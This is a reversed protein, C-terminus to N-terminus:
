SKSSQTSIEIPDGTKDMFGSRVMGNIFIEEFFITLFLHKIREPLDRDRQRPLSDYEVFLNAISTSVRSRSEPTSYLAFQKWISQKLLQFRHLFPISGSSSAKWHSSSARSQGQDDFPQLVITSIQSLWGEFCQGIQIALNENFSEKFNKWALISSLSSYDNQRIQLGPPFTLRSVWHDPNFLNISTWYQVLNTLIQSLCERSGHGRPPEPGCMRLMEQNKSAILQNLRHQANPVWVDITYKVLM